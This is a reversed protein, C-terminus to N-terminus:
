PVAKMPTVLTLVIHTAANTSQDVAQPFASAYAWSDSGERLPRWVAVTQVVPARGMTGIEHPNTSLSGTALAGLQDLSITEHAMGSVACYANTGQQRLTFGVSQHALYVGSPPTGPGKAATFGAKRALDERQAPDSGGVCLRAFTDVVQTAQYAHIPVSGNPSASTAAEATMALLALALM